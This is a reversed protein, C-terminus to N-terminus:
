ELPLFMSEVPACKWFSLVKDISRPQLTDCLIVLEPRHVGFSTLDVLVFTTLILKALLIDLDMSGM